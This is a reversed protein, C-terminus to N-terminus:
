PASWGVGDATAPERRTSASRRSGHPSGAFAPEPYSDRVAPAEPLWDALLV